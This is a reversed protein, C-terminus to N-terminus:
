KTTAKMQILPERLTIKTMLVKKVMLLWTTAAITVEPEDLSMNEEVLTDNGVAPTLALTENGDPTKIEGKAILRMTEIATTRAQRRPENALQFFLHYNNESAIIEM